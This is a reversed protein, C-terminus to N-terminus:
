IFIILESHFSVVVAGDGGRVEKVQDLRIDEVRGGTELVHSGGDGIGDNRRSSTAAAVLPFGSAFFHSVNVSVLTGIEFDAERLLGLFFGVVRMLGVLVVRALFFVIIIVNPVHFEVCAVVGAGLAFYAFHFMATGHATSVFGIITSIIIDAVVIQDIQSLPPFGFRCLIAFITLVFIFALFLFLFISLDLYMSLSHRKLPPVSTHKGIRPVFHRIMEPAIKAVLPLICDIAIAVPIRNYTTRTRDSRCKRQSRSEEGPRGSM